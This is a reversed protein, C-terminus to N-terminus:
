SGEPIYLVHSASCINLCVQDRSLATLEDHQRQVQSLQTTLEDVMERHQSEKQAMSRNSDCDIHEGLILITTVWLMLENLRQLSADPDPFSEEKPEAYSNPFTM